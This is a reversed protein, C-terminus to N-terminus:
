PKWEIVEVKHRHEISGGMQVKTGLLTKHAALMWNAASGKPGILLQIRAWKKMAHAMEEDTGSEVIELIDQSFNTVFGEITRQIKTLAEEKSQTFDEELHLYYAETRGEWNKEKCLRKLTDNAVKEPNNYIRRAAENLSRNDQPLMRYVLFARWQSDNEGPQREWIHRPTTVINENGDITPTITLTEPM